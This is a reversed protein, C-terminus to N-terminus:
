VILGAHLHAAAYGKGFDFAPSVTTTVTITDEERIEM